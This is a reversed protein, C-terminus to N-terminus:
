PLVGGALGCFGARRAELEQDSEQWIADDGEDPIFEWAPPIGLKIREQPDDITARKDTCPKTRKIPYAGWRWMMCKDGICPANQDYPNVYGAHGGFGRNWGNSSQAIPPARRAMPCWLSEAQNVTPM